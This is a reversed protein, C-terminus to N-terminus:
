WRYWMDQQLLLCDCSYANYVSSKRGRVSMWQMCCCAGLAGAVVVQELVAGPVSWPQCCGLVGVHVQMSKNMLVKCRWQCLCRHNGGSLLQVM